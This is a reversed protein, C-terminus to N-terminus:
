WIMTQLYLEQYEPNFTTDDDFRMPEVDTDTDEVVEILNDYVEAQKKSDFYHKVMFGTSVALVVSLLSIVAIRLKKNM